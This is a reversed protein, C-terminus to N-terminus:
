ECTRKDSSISDNSGTCSMKPLRASKSNPSGSCNVNAIRLFFDFQKCVLCRGSHSWTEKKVWKLWGKVILLMAATM